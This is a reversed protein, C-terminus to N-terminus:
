NVDRDPPSGGRLTTAAIYEARTVAHAVVTKALSVIDFLAYSFLITTAGFAWPEFCGASPWWVRYALAGVLALVQVVVGVVFPAMFPLLGDESEQLFLLYSNSLLSVVLALTAFVVGLLVGALVLYDGALSLRMEASVWRVLALSGLAGLSIAWVGEPWFLSRLKMAGLIRWFGFDKKSLM